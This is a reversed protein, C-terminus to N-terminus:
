AVVKAELYNESLDLVQLNEQKTIFVAINSVCVESKFWSPNKKLSLDSM